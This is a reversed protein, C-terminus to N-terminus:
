SKSGGSKKSSKKGTKAQSMEEIKQTLEDIKKELNGIKTELVAVRAKLDSVEQSATQKCGALWLALLAIVVVGAIKRM